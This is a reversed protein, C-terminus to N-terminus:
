KGRDKAKKNQGLERLLVVLNAIHVFFGEEEADYKVYDFFDAKLARADAEPDPEGFYKTKM